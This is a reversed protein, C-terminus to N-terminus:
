VHIVAPCRGFPEGHQIGHDGSGFRRTLAASSFQLHPSPGGVGPALCSLLPHLFTPGAACAAPTWSSVANAWLFPAGYPARFDAPVISQEMEVSMTGYLLQRTWPHPALGLGGGGGLGCRSLQVDRALTNARLGRSHTLM